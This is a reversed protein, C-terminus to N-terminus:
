KMMEKIYTEHDVWGRDDTMFGWNRSRRFTIFLTWPAPLNQIKEVWHFERKTRFTPIFPKRVISTKDPFHEIYGTKLPISIFHWPHDHAVPYDSMHFKHIYIDLLSSELIYYRTLYLEGKGRYIERKFGYEKSSFLRM